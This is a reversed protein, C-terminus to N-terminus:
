QRPDTVHYHMHLRFFIVFLGALICCLIVFIEGYRSYISGSQKLLRIEGTVTGSVFRPEGKGDKIVSEIRGSPNIIGSIGTNAARIVHVRNEVARFVSAQLHQFPSSTKKFWADNTINVLLKSGRLVYQRSLDAFLDEFCILVSFPVPRKFVTHDRGATFDGIPVVVELFPFLKRFPIFEGFPVLHLKNYREVHKNYPLILLASNYYSDGAQTVVGFLLPTNVENVFDNIRKFLVPDDDLVVPMAAEPWILLQPKEKIVQRSLDMYKDITFDKMSPQWKLDQPINGQIVSVLLSPYSPEHPLQFMKFYGYGTALVVCVAAPILAKFRSVPHPIRSVSSYISVNVLMILFSVGWAGTIDAIQIVPLNLYQSYGLLAWPFGTFLVSRLYESIVWISPIVLLSMYTPLKSSPTQLAVSTQLLSYRCVLFGFLGFFLALYFILIIMGALTVHILWYIIGWWFLVGTLYSLLFGKGPSANKLVFFLPVFGIWALFELNFAPFSLVLLAASCVCLLVDM